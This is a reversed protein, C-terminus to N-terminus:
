VMLSRGVGHAFPLRLQDILSIARIPKEGLLAALHSVVTELSVVPYKSPSRLANGPSSKLPLGDGDTFTTLFDTRKFCVM